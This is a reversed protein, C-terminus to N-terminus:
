KSRATDHPIVVAARQVAMQPPVVMSKSIQSNTAVAQIQKEAPAFPLQFIFTTGKNLQSEVWIKGGQAKISNQVINLGL